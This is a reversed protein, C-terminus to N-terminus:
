KRQTWVQRLLAEFLGYKIRDNSWADRLGRYDCASQRWDPKCYKALAPVFLSSLPSSHLSHTTTSCILSPLLSFSSVEPNPNLKGLVDKGEKYGDAIAGDILLEFEKEYSASTKTWGYITAM